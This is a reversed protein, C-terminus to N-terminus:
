QHHQCRRLGCRSSDVSVIAAELMRTSNCDTATRSSTWSDWVLSLMMFDRGYEQVLPMAWVIAQRGFDRFVPASVIAYHQQDGPWRHGQRGPLYGPLDRTPVTALFVRLLGYALQGLTLVYAITGLLSDFFFAIGVGLLFCCIGIASLRESLQAADGAVAQLRGDPLAPHDVTQTGSGNFAENLSPMNQGM